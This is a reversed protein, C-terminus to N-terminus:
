HHPLETLLDRSPRRTWRILKGLRPKCLISLPSAHDRDAMARRDGLAKHSFLYVTLLAQVQLVLM